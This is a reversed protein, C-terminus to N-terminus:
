PSGIGAGANYDIILANNTLDVVAGSCGHLRQGQKHRQHRGPRHRSVVVTSPWRAAGDFLVTNRIHV